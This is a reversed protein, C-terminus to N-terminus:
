SKKVTLAIVDLRESVSGSVVMSEDGYLSFGISKELINKRPFFYKNESPFQKRVACESVM